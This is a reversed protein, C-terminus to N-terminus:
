PCKGTEPDSMLLSSKDEAQVPKGPTPQPESSLHQSHALSHLGHGKHDSVNQFFLYKLNNM